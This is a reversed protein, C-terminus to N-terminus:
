PKEEALTSRILELFERAEDSDPKIQSAREAYPFAEVNQGLNYFTKGLNLNGHFHGEDLAVLRKHAVVSEPFREAGMLYYGLTEWAWTSTPDVRCARHLLDIARKYDGAGGHLVATGGLAM